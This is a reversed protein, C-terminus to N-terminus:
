YCLKLLSFAFYKELSVFLNKSVCGSSDGCKENKRRFKNWDHTARRNILEDSSCEYFLCIQYACKCSQTDENYGNKM